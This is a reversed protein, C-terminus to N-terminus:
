ESGKMTWGSAVAKSLTPRAGSSAAALAAIHELVGQENGSGRPIASLDAFHRWVAAPELGHIADDSM